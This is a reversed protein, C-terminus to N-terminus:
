YKDSSEKELIKAVNSSVLLVLKKAGKKTARSELKKDRKWVKRVGSVV